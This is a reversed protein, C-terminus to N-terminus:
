LRGGGQTERKRASAIRAVSAEKTNRGCVLCVEAEPSKCKGNRDTYEKGGM